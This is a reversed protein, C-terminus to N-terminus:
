DNSIMKMPFKLRGMESMLEWPFDFEMQNQDMWLDIVVQVEFDNRQLTEAVELPVTSLWQAFSVLAGRLSQFFGESPESHNQFDKLNRDFVLFGASQWRGGSGFPKFQSFDSRFAGVLDEPIITGDRKHSGVLTVKVSNVM